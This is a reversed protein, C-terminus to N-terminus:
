YFVSYSSLSVISQDFRIFSKGTNFENLKRRHPSAIVSGAPLITESVFLVSDDVQNPTDPIVIVENNLLRRPTRTTSTSTNEIPVNNITITFKPSQVVNEPAPRFQSAQENMLMELQRVEESPATCSGESSPASSSAIANDEIVNTSASSSATSSCAAESSASTITCTRRADASSSNPVSITVTQNDPEPRTKMMPTSTIIKSMKPAEFTNTFSQDVHSENMNIDGHLVDTNIVAAETLMPTPTALSATKPTDFTSTLDADHPDSENIIEIAANEVAANIENWKKVLPTSTVAGITPGVSGNMTQFSDDSVSEYFKSLEHSNPVTSDGIEIVNFSRKPTSEIHDDTKRKGMNSSTTQAAPKNTLPQLHVNYNPLPQRNDCDTVDPARDEYFLNQALSESIHSVPSRSLPQETDLADLAQGPSNSAENEDELDIIESVPEIIECDSGDGSDSSDSSDAIYSTETAYRKFHQNRLRRSAPTSNVGNQPSQRTSNSLPSTTTSNGLRSRQLVRRQQRKTLKKSRSGAASTPLKSSKRKPHGKSLKRILSQQKERRKRRM